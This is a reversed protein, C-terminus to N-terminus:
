THFSRFYGFLDKSQNLLLFVLTGVGSVQQKALLIFNIRKFAFNRNDM